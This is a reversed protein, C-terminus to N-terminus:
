DNESPRLRILVLEPDCNFRMRPAFSREMGIGRSVILTRGAGIETRGSAWDRPVRSFTVPPGYLPIQVQGGHTHGALSLDAQHVGLAYDPAHGFVLQFRQSPAIELQSNFSDHVDLAVLELAELELRQSTTLPSAWGEFLAEWGAYGEVNGRLAYIGLPASVGAEIFARRLAQQLRSRELPDDVQLYDGPMLILDAGSAALQRILAREHAGVQDTQLDAVLAVLLERELKPSRVEHHTVRLRYPALLFAEGGVAILVLAMAVFSRRSRRRQPGMLYVAALMILPAHVFLAWSMLRAAHMMSGGAWWTLLAVDLVSAAFGVGLGGWVMRRDPREHVGALYAAGTVAMALHLIWDVLSVM